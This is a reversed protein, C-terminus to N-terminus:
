AGQIGPYLVSIYGNSFATLIDNLYECARSPRCIYNKNLQETNVKNCDHGQWGEIICSDAYPHWSAWPTSMTIYTAKNRNWPNTITAAHLSSLAWLPWLNKWSAQVSQCCFEVDPSKLVICGLAGKNTSFCVRAKHPPVSSDGKPGVGICCKVHHAGAWDGCCTCFNM